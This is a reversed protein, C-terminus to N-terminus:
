LAKGKLSMGFKITRNAPDNVSYNLSVSFCIYTKSGITVEMTPAQGTSTSSAKYKKYLAFLRDIGMVNGSDDCTSPFCIGSVELSQIEDGFVYLYTTDQLSQSFQHSVPEVVQLDTVAINVYTDLYSGGTGRIRVSGPLTARGNVIRATRGENPFIDGM